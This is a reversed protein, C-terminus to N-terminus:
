RLLHLLRCFLVCSVCAVCRGFSVCSYYMYIHKNKRLTRQTRQTRQTSQTPFWAKHPGTASACAVASPSTVVRILEGSVARVRPVIYGPKEV